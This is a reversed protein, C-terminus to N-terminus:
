KNEISKSFYWPHESARVIGDTGENGHIRVAHLFPTSLYDPAEPDISNRKVRGSSHIYRGHADYIAVHTVRGTKANGFFLLDGPRCSRWDASEIRTGTLAQQSADRRLIIGNSLYATKALGSCDLAKVSTGGWLYPTGEMSYATDLIRRADFPQTAWQEIPAFTKADAWGKRGDPLTMQVRGNRQGSLSGEVIDGLVIDTVVDRVGTATPSTYVRQQYPDTMVLRSAQRWARMRSDSVRVLSSEPAYAIYGDPTQVRQWEGDRGGLVRLPMGMLAQTAMEAAHSPGTRLSIASLRCLAWTTDSYLEINNVYSIRQRRLNGLINAVVAAESTAGTLEIVGDENQRATIDAVVQRKDPAFEKKTDAIIREAVDVPRDVPTCELVEMHRKFGPYFINGRSSELEGAQQDVTESRVFRKAPVLPGCVGSNAALRYHDIGTSYFNRAHPDSANEMRSFSVDVPVWGVGEFYVEAWDHYNLAGPHMMWGSEWRAPVGLSRMLSIYLLAVQGCDGHGERLVYEPICELTSYERAGAWPLNRYIYDYVLESQRLPNTENGVISRALSDLRVIHPAEMATYLRYLESDKDYPKMDHLIDEPDFYQASATYEVTIDFHTDANDAVPQELYVSRHVSADPDSVRAGAPHSDVLRIDSQRQSPRPMPLWLRLTDGALADNYPVDVSYRYRYRRAAGKRTKHALTALISDVQAIREPSKPATRGKYGGNMDPNLLKLNRPSKTHMHPKGDIDAVEVYRKEIFKRIDADTVDPHLQKIAASGEKLSLGFDARTRAEIAPASDPELWMPAAAGATIASIATIVTALIINKM